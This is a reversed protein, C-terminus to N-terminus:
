KKPLIGFFVFIIASQIKESCLVMLILFNGFTVEGVTKILHPRVTILVNSVMCSYLSNNKRAILWTKCFRHCNSIQVHSDLPFGLFILM